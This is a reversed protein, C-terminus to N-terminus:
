GDEGVYRWSRSLTEIIRGVENSEMGGILERGVEAPLRGPVDGRLTQYM